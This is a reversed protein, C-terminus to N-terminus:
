RKAKKKKKEPKIIEDLMALLKTRDLSRATAAQESAVLQKSLARPINQERIRVKVGKPIKPLKLRGASNHRVRITLIIGERTGCEIGIGLFWPANAQMRSIESAVREARKFDLTEEERAKLTFLGHVQILPYYRYGGRPGTKNRRVFGSKFLASLTFGLNSSPWGGKKSIESSTLGPNKQIFPLVTRKSAGYRLTSNNYFDISDM